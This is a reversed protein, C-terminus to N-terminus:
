YFRFLMVETTQIKDNFLTNFLTVAHSLVTWLTFDERETAWELRNSSNVVKINVLSTHSSPKGGKKWACVSVVDTCVELLGRQSCNELQLCGAFFTLWTSFISIVYNQERKEEPDAEFKKKRHWLLICLCWLINLFKHAKHHPLTDPKKNLLELQHELIFPKGSLCKFKKLGRVKNILSTEATWCTLCRRRAKRLLKLCWECQSLIHKCAHKKRKAM